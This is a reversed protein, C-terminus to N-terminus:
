APLTIEFDDPKTLRRQILLVPNQFYGPRKISIGGIPVQFSCCNAASRSFLNM